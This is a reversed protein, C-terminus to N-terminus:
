DIKSFEPYFKYLTEIYYKPSILYCLGHSAGEIVIFEKRSRCAEYNERSMYEPVFADASGHYFIVPIKSRKVAERADADNIDFGGFLRGGLRVFPYFIKDPLKMDRIVKRIIEEATTYGCDALAGVANEPLEEGACMLATAAGMSIGTIIVKTDAGFHEIILDLWRLADKKENIGFSIVRGDSRGSARHDIVFANHGVAFARYIGASMDREASGRYGHMMLEIPAGKEKEYYRANLTLGDFSKIWFEEYPLERARLVAARMREYYPEYEEGEPLPIKESPERKEKPPALFVMRFCVYATILCILALGLIVACIIYFIEM